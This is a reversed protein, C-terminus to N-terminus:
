ATVAVIGHDADTVREIALHGTVSWRNSQLANTDALNPDLYQRSVLIALMGTCQNVTENLNVPSASPTGATGRRPPNPIGSVDRVYHDAHFYAYHRQNRDTGPLGQWNVHLPLRHGIKVNNAIARNSDPSDPNEFRYGILLEFYTPGSITANLHAAIRYLYRRQPDGALGIQVGIALDQEDTARNTAGIDTHAIHLGTHAVGCKINANRRLVEYRSEVLHSADFGTVSEDIAVQWADTDTVELQQGGSWANLLRTAKRMNASLAPRDFPHHWSM